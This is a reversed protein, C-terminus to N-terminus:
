RSFSGKWESKQFRIMKRGGTLLNIVIIYEVSGNKRKNGEMIAINNGVYQGVHVFDQRFPNIPSPTKENVRFPQLQRVQMKM